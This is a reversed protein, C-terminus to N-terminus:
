TLPPNAVAHFFFWESCSAVLFPGTSVIKIKNLHKLRADSALGVAPGLRLRRYKKAGRLFWLCRPCPLSSGRLNTEATQLSRLSSRTASGGTVQLEYDIKGSVVVVVVLVVGVGGRTLQIRNPHQFDDVVCLFLLSCLGFAGRIM